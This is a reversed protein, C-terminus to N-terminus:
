SEYKFWAENDKVIKKLHENDSEPLKSPPLCDQIRGGKLVAVYDAIRFVRPIDHSVILATYGLREHVDAFLDYITESTEPDLGTTPEDFLVIEPDRVLARALGVRKQMGGSLQGPYKEKHDQMTVLELTNMVKDEIEPEKMKTKERLPLAVNDFVSMSDFLAAGQFLVGFSSRISRLEKRGMGVVNKGKVLVEGSSPEYLGLVIKLLVSKGVGSPGVIVTTKGKLVKLNVDKHVVQSGFSIEVKSLEIIAEDSM